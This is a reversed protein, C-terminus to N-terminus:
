NLYNELTAAEVKTFSPFHKDELLKSDITIKNPAISTNINNDSIATIIDTVVNENYWDNYVEKSTVDEPTNYLFCFFPYVPTQDVLLDSGNTYDMNNRNMKISDTRASTFSSNIINTYIEGLKNFLPKPDLYFNKSTGVASSQLLIKQAESWEEENDLVITGDESLRFNDSIYNPFSYRERWLELYDKADAM